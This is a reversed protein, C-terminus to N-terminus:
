ALSAVVKDRVTASLDGRAIPSSFFLLAFSRVSQSFTELVLEGQWWVGCSTLM